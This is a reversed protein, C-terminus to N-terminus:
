HHIALQDANASRDTQCPSGWEITGFPRLAALWYFGARLGAPRTQKKAAEKRLACFIRAAFVLFFAGRFISWNL